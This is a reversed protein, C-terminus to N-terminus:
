DGALAALGCDEIERMQRTVVAVREPEALCDAAYQMDM